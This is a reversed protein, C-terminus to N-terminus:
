GLALAVIVAAIALAGLLRMWRDSEGLLRGEILAAFLMSVERAASCPLDSVAYGHLLTRFYLVHLVASAVLILWEAVGWYSVERVGVWAVVPLWVVAVQLSGMLVFYSGGGAKKAVLNWSAHCIAATWVLALALPTM